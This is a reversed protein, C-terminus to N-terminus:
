DFMFSDVDAKAEGEQLLQIRSVKTTLRCQNDSKVFLSSIAVVVRTKSGPNITADKPMPKNEKDVIVCEETVKGSFLSELDSDEKRYVLPIYYKAKLLQAVTMEMGFLTESSKALTALIASDVFDLGALTIDPLAVSLNHWTGNQGEIKKVGTPTTLPTVNTGLILYPRKNNVAVGLYKGGHESAYKKLSRLCWPYSQNDPITETQLYIAAM